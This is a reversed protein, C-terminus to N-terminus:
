EGRKLMKSLVGKPHACLLAIVWGILAVIILVGGLMAAEPTMELFEGRGEIYLLVHDVFIMLTAGWFILSLFGLKYKGESDKFYWIATTIVAALSTTILWM